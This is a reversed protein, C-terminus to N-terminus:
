QERNDDILRDQQYEGDVGKHRGHEGIAELTTVLWNGIIKLIKM